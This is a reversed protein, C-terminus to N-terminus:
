QISGDDGEAPRPGPTVQSMEYPFVRLMKGVTPEIEDRLKKTALAGLLKSLAAFSFRRSATSNVSIVLPGDEITAGAEYANLLEQRLKQRRERLPREEESLRYYEDLKDQTIILTSAQKSNVIIGRSFIM